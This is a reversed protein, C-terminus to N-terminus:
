PIVATGVSRAVGSRSFSRDALRARVRLQGCRSGASAGDGNGLAVYVGDDGFGVIDARRDGTLDALFRPHRNTPDFGTWSM